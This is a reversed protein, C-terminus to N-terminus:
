QSPSQRPNPVPIILVQIHHLYNLKHLDSLVNGFDDDGDARGGSNGPHEGSQTSHMGKDRYFLKGNLIFAVTSDAPITWRARLFDVLDQTKEKGSYYIGVEQGRGDKCSIYITRGVSKEDFAILGTSNSTRAFSQVAAMGSTTTMGSTAMTTTTTTTNTSTMTSPTVSASTQLQSRAMNALGRELADMPYGDVLMPDGPRQFPADSMWQLSTGNGGGKAIRLLARVDAALRLVSEVQGNVSEHEIKKKDFVSKDLHIQLGHSELFVHSSASLNLKRHFFNLLDDASENGQFHLRMPTLGAYLDFGIPRDPSEVAYDIASSSSSRNTTFRTVGSSDVYELRPMGRPEGGSSRDIPRLLVHITAVGSVKYKGVFQQMTDTLSSAEEALNADDTYAKRGGIWIAINVDESIEYKWRLFDLVQRMTEKGSYIITHARMAFFKFHMGAVPELGYGAFDVLRLSKIASPQAPVPASQLEARVAIDYLARQRKDIELQLENLVARMEKLALASRGHVDDQLLLPENLPYAPPNKLGLATLKCPQERSIMRVFNRKDLLLYIREANDPLLIDLLTRNFRLADGLKDSEELNVASGRVDLRQLSRNSKLGSSLATLVGPAVVLGSWVLTELRFGNREFIGRFLALMENLAQEYADDAQSNELHAYAAFLRKGINELGELDVNGAEWSFNVLRPCTEAFQLVTLLAMMNARDANVTSNVGTVNLTTLTPHNVLPQLIVERLADIHKVMDHVSVVSLSPSLAAARVCAGLDGLESCAAPSRGTNLTLSKLRPGQPEQSFAAILPHLTLLSGHHIELHDLTSCNRLGVLLTKFSEMGRAGMAEYQIAPNGLHISQLRSNRLADAVPVPDLLEGFISLERTGAELLAQICKSVAEPIPHFITPEYEKQESTALVKVHQVRIQRFAQVMEAEHVPKWDQPLKLFLTAEFPEGDTQRCECWANFVEVFVGYEEFQILATFASTTAFPNHPLGNGQSIADLVSEVTGTFGYHANNLRSLWGDRIQAPTQLETRPRHNTQEVRAGDSSLRKHLSSAGIDSNRM